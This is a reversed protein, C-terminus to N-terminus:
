TAIADAMEDYTVQFSWEHNNIEYNSVGGHTDAWEM